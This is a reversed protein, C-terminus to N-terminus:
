DKDYCLHLFLPVYLFFSFRGIVNKFQHLITGICNRLDTNKGSYTGLLECFTGLEKMAIDPKM